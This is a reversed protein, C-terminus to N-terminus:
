EVIELLDDVDFCHTERVRQCSIEVGECTNTLQYDYTRIGGELSIGHPSGGDTSTAMVPGVLSSDQGQLFM